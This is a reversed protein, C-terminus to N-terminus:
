LTSKALFWLRQLWICLRCVTRTDHRSKTNFAQVQESLGATNPTVTYPPVHLAEGWNESLSTVGLVTEPCQALGRHIGKGTEILFYKLKDIHLCFPCMYEKNADEGETDLRFFKVKIGTKSQPELTAQDRDHKATQERLYKRHSM